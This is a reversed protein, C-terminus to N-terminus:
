EEDEEAGESWEGRTGSGEFFEEEELIEMVGDTVHQREVGSLKPNEKTLVEGILTRAEKRNQADSLLEDARGALSEIISQVNM